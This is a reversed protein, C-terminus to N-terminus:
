SSTKKPLPVVVEEWVFDKLQRDWVKQKIVIRDRFIASVVGDQNGVPTGVTVLYGKGTSDEIIARRGMPGWLVGKFGRQIESIDMKQLPTLVLPEPPLVEELAAREMAEEEPSKVFPKFPDPLSALPGYRFDPRLLFAIFEKRNDLARDEPSQAKVEKSPSEEQGQVTWAYLPAGLIFVVFLLTVISAIKKM